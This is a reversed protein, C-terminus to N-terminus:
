RGRRASTAARPARRRRRAAAAAARPNARRSARRGGGRGGEDDDDDDDARRPRADQVPQGANESSRRRRCLGGGAAAAGTMGTTARPLRSLNLLAAAPVVAARCTRLSAFHGPRMCARAGMGGRLARARCPRRHRARWVARHGRALHAVGDGPAHNRRVAAFTEHADAPEPLVCRRSSTPPRRRPSARFAFAATRRPRPSSSRSPRSRLMDAPVFLSRRGRAPATSGDDLLAGLRRTAFSQEPASERGVRALGDEARRGGRGGGEPARRRRRELRRRGERRRRRPVGRGGRLLRGAPQALAPQVGAPLADMYTACRAPSRPKLRSSPRRAPADRRRPAWGVAVLRAVDEGSARGVEQKKGSEDRDHCRSSRPSRTGAISLRLATATRSVRERHVAPLQPMPLRPSVRVKVPPPEAAAADAAAQRRRRRRSSSASPGRTGRRGAARPRPLAARRAAAAARARLHARDAHPPADVVLQAPGDAGRRLAARRARRAARRGHCAEFLHVDSAPSTAWESRSAACAARPPRGGAAEVRPPAHRRARRRRPPRTATVTARTPSPPSPRRAASRGTSGCRSGRRATAASSRSVGRRRRADLRRSGCCGRSAARRPRALSDLIEAVGERACPSRCGRRLLPWRAAAAAAGAAARRRRPARGAADGLQRARVRGVARPQAARVAGVGAAAAAAATQSRRSPAALRPGRANRTKEDASVVRRRPDIAHRRPPRRRWAAPSCPRAPGCADPEIARRRGPVVRAAGCRKLGGRAVAAAAGSVTARSSAVRPPPPPPAAGTGIAHSVLLQTFMSSSAVAGVEASPM